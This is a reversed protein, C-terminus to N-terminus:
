KGKKFGKPAAKKARVKASDGNGPQEAIADVLIDFADQIGARPLDRGPM